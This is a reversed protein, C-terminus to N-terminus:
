LVHIKDFPWIIFAAKGQIRDYPIPGVMRSDTSDNRNDGMVAVSNEPVTFEQTDEQYVGTFYDHDPIGNVYLVGGEVKISDGPLGVVRKIYSFESGPFYCVIIDGRQPVGFWYSVREMLVYEESYLVPQMSKGNVRVFEFVLFRMTLAIIIAAAVSIIWGAADRKRYEKKNRAGANVGQDNDPGCRSLDTM